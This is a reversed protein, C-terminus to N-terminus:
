TYGMKKILKVEEGLFHNQLFDSLQPDTPLVLAQLELLAQNLSRELALAAEMRGSNQGSMKLLEMTHQEHLVFGCVEKIMDQMFKTHKSEEKEWIGLASVDLKEELGGCRTENQAAEPSNPLSGILHLDTKLRRKADAVGPQHCKCTESPLGTGADEFKRLPTAGPFDKPRQSVAGAM